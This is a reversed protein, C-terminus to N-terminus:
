FKYGAGAGITWERKDKDRKGSQHSDREFYYEGSIDFIIGNELEVEYRGNISVTHKDRNVTLIDFNSGGKFKGTIYEDDYGNLIRDYSVGISATHKVKEGLIIKKLDAGTRLITYNFDKEETEIALEKSGEDTEDQKIYTYSLTVYPEFFFEKELPLSYRIDGYVSLGLDNYNESYKDAIGNWYRIGTREAKYDGYHIGTGLTIRLNGNYKKAYAGLYVADGEINSHLIDTDSSSGGATGGLVLSNSYKYEASMYGGAIESDADIDRSGVDLTRVGKGYFRRGSGGDIHTLGGYVAWKHLEPNLNKNLVAKEQMEMTRRTVEASYGYPNAAFIDSFYQLSEVYEKDTEVDTLLGDQGSSVISKYIKNLYKYDAFNSTEPIDPIIPPLNEISEVKLNDGDKIVTHYKSAATLNPNKIETGDKVSEGLATSGLDIITGRGNGNLVFSIKGNEATTIEADTNYLAHNTVTNNEAEGLRINMVGNDTINIKGIDSLVAGTVREGDNNKIQESFTINEDVTVIEAGKIESNIFLTDKESNEGKAFTLEGKNGTFEVSNGNFTIDRGTFTVKNSNGAMSIDGNVISKGKLEFVAGNKESKVAINSNERDRLGGGNIIVDTGTFKKNDTEFTVAKEFSNIVGSKIEVNENVALTKHVGNIIINEKNSLNSSLITKENIKGDVATLTTNQDITNLVKWNKYNDNNLIIGGKGATVDAIKGNKDLKVAIGYDASKIDDFKEAEIPTQGAIIGYNVYNEIKGFKEGTDDTIKISIGNNKGAIVGANILNGIEAAANSGFSYIGIGNGINNFEGKNINGSNGTITGSNTLETIKSSTKSGNFSYIGIGNGTNNSNSNEYPNSNGDINGTKGTITGKNVLSNILSTVIDIDGEIDNVSYVGIGNGVNNEGSDNNINESKGGINGDNILIDISSNAAFDRNFSYIGIGNGANNLEGNDDYIDGIKGIIDGNNTLNIISSCSETKNNRSIVSNSYVGIGNGANNNASEQGSIDGSKGTINGNNILRNISSKTDSDYSVTYVGVGNGINNNDSNNESWESVSINEINGTISGSNTLETISSTAVSNFSESHVGIGNGANNGLSHDSNETSYIDKAKGIINGNNILETISSSAKSSNMNNNYSYIGIGNGINSRYNYINGSEGTIKGSNKLIIISSEAISTNGITNSYIGIGNGVSNNGNWAIHINGAKGTISGNNELNDILSKADSDNSKFYFEIGNGLHKETETIDGVSAKVIGNNEISLNKDVINKDFSIQGSHNFKESFIIKNNETKVKDGDIISKGNETVTVFKNINDFGIIVDSGYSVAGTILFTVVLGLTIRVRKKLFRKLSNEVYNKGM